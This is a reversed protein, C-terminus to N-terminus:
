NFRQKVLYHELANEIDPSNIIHIDNKITALWKLLEENLEVSAGWIFEGQANSVLSPNGLFHFKPELDIDAFLNPLKIILRREQDYMKRNADIFHDIDFASFNNQCKQPIIRAKEIDDINLTVLQQSHIDEGILTLNGQLYVLKYPFIELSPADHSSVVIKLAERKLIFAELQEVLAPIDRKKFFGIKMSINDSKPGCPKLSKRGMFQYDIRINSFNNSLFGINTM